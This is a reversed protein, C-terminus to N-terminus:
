KIEDATKGRVMQLRADFNDCTEKMSNEYPAFLQNIEESHVISKQSSLDFHIFEAWMIAKLKTKAKNWMRMELMLGRERWELITTQIIVTEALHAPSFYAIQHKSVVWGVGKESAIHVLNLGHGSQLHDERANMFYELYKLNNLHNFPDCDAFRILVESQFTKEQIHSKTEM